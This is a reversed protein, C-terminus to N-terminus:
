VLGLGIGVNANRQQSFHLKFCGPRFFPFYILKIPTIVCFRVQGMCYSRQLTVNESIFCLSGCVELSVAM